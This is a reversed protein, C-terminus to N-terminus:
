SHNDAQVLAKLYRNQKSNGVSEIDDREHHEILWATLSSVGASVAMDAGWVPHQRAVVLPRLWFSDEGQIEHSVEVPLGSALVIWIRDWVSLPMRSKGVDHLLGAALLESDQFGESQLYRVVRVCHAQEGLTMGEFLAIQEPTLISHILDWERSSLNGTLSKWVQWTRYRVKELM